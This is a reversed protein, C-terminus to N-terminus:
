DRTVSDGRDACEKYKTLRLVLFPPQSGRESLALKGLGPGPGVGLVLGRAALKRATSQGHGGGLVRAHLKCQVVHVPSRLPMCLPMCEWGPRAVLAELGLLSAPRPSSIMTYLALASACVGPCSASAFRKAEAHSSMRKTRAGAGGGLEGALM